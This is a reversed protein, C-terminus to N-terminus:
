PRGRTWRAQLAHAADELDTARQVDGHRRANAAQALKAKACIHGDMAFYHNVMYDTDLKPYKTFHWRERHVLAENWVLLGLFKGSEDHATQADNSVREIAYYLSNFEPRWSDPGVCAIWAATFQTHADLHLRIANRILREADPDYDRLVALYVNLQDERAQETVPICGGEITFRVLM